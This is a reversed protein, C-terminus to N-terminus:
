SSTPWVLCYEAPYDPFSRCAAPRNPHDACANNEDLFPCFGDNDSFLLYIRETDRTRWTGHANTVEERFGVEPFFGAFREAEAYTLAIYGPAQCCAAGCQVACVELSPEVAWHPNGTM